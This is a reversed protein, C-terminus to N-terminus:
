QLGLNNYYDTRGSKHLTCNHIATHGGDTLPLLSINVFAPIDYKSIYHRPFIWIKLCRVIM